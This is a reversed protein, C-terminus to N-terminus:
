IKVHTLRLGSGGGHHQIKERVTVTAPFGSHRRVLGYRECLKLNKETGESRRWLPKPADTVSLEALSIKNIWYRADLIWCREAALLPNWKVVM